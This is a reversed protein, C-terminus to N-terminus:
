SMALATLPVAREGRQVEADMRDAAICRRVDVEQVVARGSLRRPLASSAHFYTKPAAVPIVVVLADGSVLEVGHAGEQVPPERRQRRAQRSPDCFAPRAGRRRQPAVLFPQLRPEAGRRRRRGVCWARVRCARRHLGVSVRLAGARVRLGQGNKMSMMAVREPAVQGLDCRDREAIRAATVRAPQAHGPQPERSGSCKTECWPLASSAPFIGVSSRRPRAALNGPEHLSQGRLRGRRARARQQVLGGDVPEVAVAVAVAVGVVRRGLMMRPPVPPYKLMPRQSCSGPGVRGLDQDRMALAMPTFMVLKPSELNPSM